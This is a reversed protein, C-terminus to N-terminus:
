MCKSTETCAMQDLRIHVTDEYASM